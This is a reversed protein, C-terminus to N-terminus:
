GQNSAEELAARLVPADQYKEVAQRVIDQRMKDYLQVLRIYNKPNKPELSMAQRYYYHADLLLGQREKVQALLFYAVESKDNKSIYTYLYREALELNGYNFCWEGVALSLESASEPTLGDLLTTAREWEGVDVTRKFVDLLISIGEKGLAVKPFIRDGLNHELIGIVGASDETLRLTTIEEALRRVEQQRGQLWFCFLKNFMAASYQPEDPTISDFKNIAAAFQQQQALCIAKKIKMAGAEYIKMGPVEEAAKTATEFYEYALKYASQNMLLEAVCINAAPSEFECIKELSQKAYAADTRPELIRCICELSASFAANDRLSLIYNRLAEEQNCFLEAILGLHYYARFGKTGSFPAYYSPQAPMAVARSFAAYALGYEKQEYYIIGQYYLLDAYTPFWGLGQRIINLAAQYKKENYYCLVIYRMLKPLYSTTSDVGDAGKIFEDAAQEYKGVRYLEAGYHYHLLKDDPYKLIHEEIMRLNRNKKDKEIIQQELFGYHRIVMDEAVFFKAAKNHQTIVDAIQEHIAGRFRHEPCNRFLRFVIDPSMETAGNGGVYNEIRLFYGSIREDEILRRLISTSEPALEEDADLCLVWDGTALELSQNRADSFSGNWEFSQLKAGFEKAIECSNDTSGTDVIIIEDVADIVSQLCRRLNKGENKVIMCLSVKM